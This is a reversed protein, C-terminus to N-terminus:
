IATMTYTILPAHTTTDETAWEGALITAVYELDCTYWGPGIGTILSGGTTDLTVASQATGPTTDGADNGALTKAEVTLASLWTSPIALSSKVSVTIGSNTTKYTLDCTTNDTVTGLGSLPSVEMSLTGSVEISYATDMTITITQSATQTGTGEGGYVLAGVGVVLLGIAVLLGARKLM